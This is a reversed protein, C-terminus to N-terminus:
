LSSAYIRKISKAMNAVTYKNKVLKAGNIGIEKLDVKNKIILTFLQVLEKELNKIKVIYGANHTKVDPFNCGDSIIVPLQEQMAELISISFGEALSPHIFIDSLNYLEKKEKDNVFGIIHVNKINHLKILEKLKLEIGDDPGALILRANIKSKAFSRLTEILGKQSHLKGIYLFNILDNKIFKFKNTAQVNLDSVGNFVTFINSIGLSQLDNSEQNSVAIVGHSKRICFLSIPLLLKKIFTKKKLRIPDLVGHPSYFLPIRFIIALVAIFLQPIIFVDHIHVLDYKKYNLTFDTIMGFGTFLRLKFAISNIINRFYKVVLNHKCQLKESESIRRNKDWVDTTYITVKEKKSLERSLDYVVKAPGGFNLAPYLYSCVQLIKM